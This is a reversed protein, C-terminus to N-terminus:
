PSDKNALSRLDIKKDDMSCVCPPLGKVYTCESKQPEVTMSIAFHALFSVMVPIFKLVKM